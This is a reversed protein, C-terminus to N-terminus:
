LWRLFNLSWRCGEVVVEFVDVVMRLVLISCFM